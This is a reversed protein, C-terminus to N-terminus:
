QNTWIGGRGLYISVGIICFGGISAYITTQTLPVNFFANLIYLFLQPTLGFVIAIVFMETFDKLKPFFAKTLILGPTLILVLIGVITKAIDFPEM